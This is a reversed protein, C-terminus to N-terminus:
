AAPQRKGADIWGGGHAIAATGRTPEDGCREITADCSWNELAAAKAPKNDVRNTRADTATTRVVARGVEQKTEKSAVAAATGQSHLEAASESTAPSGQVGGRRRKHHFTVYVPIPQDQKEMTLHQGTRWAGM